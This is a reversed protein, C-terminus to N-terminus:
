RIKAGATLIKKAKIESVLHILDVYVQKFGIGNGIPITAVRKKIMPFFGMQFDSVFPFRHAKYHMSGLPKPKGIEDYPVLLPSCFVQQDPPRSCGGHMKPHM